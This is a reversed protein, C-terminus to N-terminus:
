NLSRCLRDIWFQLLQETVGVLQATYRGAGVGDNRLTRPGWEFLVEGDDVPLLESDLWGGLKKKAEFLTVKANPLVKTLNYAAALGTIGGGVVAVNKARSNPQAQIKYLPVDSQISTILPPYPTSVTSTFPRFSQFWPESVAQRRRAIQTIAYPSCCMRM